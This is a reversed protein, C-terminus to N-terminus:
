GIANLAAEYNPEGPEPLMMMNDITYGDVQYVNMFYFDSDVSKYLELAYHIANLSNKSFDTPVLIRKNM